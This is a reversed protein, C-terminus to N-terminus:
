PTARDPLDSVTADGDEELELLRRLEAFARQRRVGTTAVVALFLEEIRAQRALLRDLAESVPRRLSPRKPDPGWVWLVASLVCEDM